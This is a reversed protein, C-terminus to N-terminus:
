PNSTSLAVDNAVNVTQCLCLWARLLILFLGRLSVASAEPACLCIDKMVPYVHM